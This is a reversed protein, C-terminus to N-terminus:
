SARRARGLGLIILLVGNSHLATQPVEDLRRRSPSKLESM